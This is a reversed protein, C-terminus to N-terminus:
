VGLISQLTAIVMINMIVNYNLENRANILKLIEQDIDKFNCIISNLIKDYNRITTNDNFKKKLAEKFFIILLDLFFRYDDKTKLLPLIYCETYFLFDGKNSLFTLLVLTNEKIKSLKEDSLVEKIKNADNYFFSLLESDKRPIELEDCQEILSQQDLLSFNIIESRSLITPLVKFKNETTLIAFTNAPPEELFKLLMNLIDFSLNEICNIIYIKIGSKELSTNTFFDILSSIEEKKITGLKTDFIKLDAYLNKDIKTCTPCNDCAFYHHNPCLISKAFYKAIELLPTGVNGSLLYCHFYSNNKLTNEFIRYPIKQNNELYKSIEM